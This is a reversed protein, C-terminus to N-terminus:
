IPQPSLRKLMDQMVELEAETLALSGDSKAIFDVM